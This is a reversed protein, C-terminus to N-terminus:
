KRVEVKRVVRICPRGKCKEPMDVEWCVCPLYGLHSCIWFEQPEKIPREILKLSPEHHWDCFKGDSFFRKDVSGVFRATPAEYEVEVVTGKAGMWSVIDGVQFLFKEVPKEKHEAIYAKAKEEITHFNDVCEKGDPSNFCEVCSINHCSQQKIYLQASELFTM